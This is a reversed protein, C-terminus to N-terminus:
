SRMKIIDVLEDLTYRRIEQDTKLELQARMYNKERYDVYQYSLGEVLKDYIKDTIAKIAASFEEKLNPYYNILERLIMVKEDYEAQYKATDKLQEREATRRDLLIGAAAEVLAKRNIRKETTDNMM